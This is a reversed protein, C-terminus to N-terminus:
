ARRALLDVLRRALGARLRTYPPYFLRLANLRGDRLVAREHSFAKFGYWGHANGFGSQNVGGFPLGGHAYQQMCLNIGLGGSSTLQAVRRIVAEDRAWLYLALPKATRQVSALVEDLSEYEILPLVPGFIEEQQIRAAQPVQGLLTPAVYRAAADHKGGALVQAGQVRADDLLAAVRAAHRGHIMRAFDASAAVTAGDAGFSRAVAARWAEVFRQALSRHVYVHDPAVCSQGANLCKGWVLMRAAADVDASADVIVPSKGGLELTVSALHRAAAAMVLQGVAPSGTFFIHDFPLALLCQSTAVAGRVVTVEDPPFVAAVLEAIVANVHPTFESPKIIVANGAAVASVLPGLVCNLPYNWPGILLCRGRPQYHMQARTGFTTLTPSVRRPRMWRGLRSCAQHLEDVVPLLESLEVETAPKGLDAAFAAHWASRRLMLATRLKRLKARREAVTSTRLAMATAAQAAFLRQIDASATDADPAPDGHLVANM